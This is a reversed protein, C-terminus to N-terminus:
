QLLMWDDDRNDGGPSDCIKLLCGGAGLAAVICVVLSIVFLNFSSLMVAIVVMIIGVIILFIWLPLRDAAKNAKRKEKDFESEGAPEANTKLKIHLNEM